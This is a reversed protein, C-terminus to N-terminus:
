AGRQAPHSRRAGRGGTGAMREMAGRSVPAPAATDGGQGHRAQGKRWRQRGTEVWQRITNFEAAQQARRQDMVSEVARRSWLPRKPKQVRQWLGYVNHTHRMDIIGATAAAIVTQKIAALDGSLTGIISVQENFARRAALSGTQNM